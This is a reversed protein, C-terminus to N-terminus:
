RWIKLKRFIKMIQAMPFKVQSIILATDEDIGIGYSTGLDLHLTDAILRLLRGERGRQRFFYHRTM